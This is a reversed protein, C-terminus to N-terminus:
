LNVSHQKKAAIPDAFEFEEGGVDCLGKTYRHFVDEFDSWFRRGMNLEEMLGATPHYIHGFPVSVIDLANRIEETEKAIAVDIFTVEPNRRALRKYMPEVAKCSKCWHSFFRVIMLKENAKCEDICAMLEDLSEVNRVKNSSSNSTSRVVRTVRSFKKKKPPADTVASASTEADKVSTSPDASPDVIVGKENVNADVDKMKTEEAGDEFEKSKYRLWSTQKKYDSRHYTNMMTKQARTPNKGQRFSFKDYVRNQRFRKLPALQFALVTVLNTMALVM